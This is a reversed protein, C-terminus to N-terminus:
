KRKGEFSFKKACIEVKIGSLKREAVQIEKTEKLTVNMRGKEGDETAPNADGELSGETRSGKEARVTGEWRACMECAMIRAGKECGSRREKELL